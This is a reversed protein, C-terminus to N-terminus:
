RQRSKRYSLRANETLVMAGAADGFTAKLMRTTDRDIM